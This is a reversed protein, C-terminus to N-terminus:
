IFIKNKSEYTYIIVRKEDECILDERLGLEKMKNIVGPIATTVFVCECGASIAKKTCYQFLIMIIEFRDEEKYNPDSMLFDFYGMKSNTLYLYIVAIPKNNKEIIFGDLGGNPLLISKPRLEKRQSYWENIYTYDEVVVQRVNYKQEM